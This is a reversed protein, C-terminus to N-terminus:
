FFLPYRARHKSSGYHRQWAATGQEGSREDHERGRDEEDVGDGIELDGNRDEIDGDHQDRDTIEVLAPHHHHRRGAHRQRQQAEDQCAGSGERGAHDVAGDAQRRDADGSIERQPRRCGLRRGSLRLRLKGMDRAHRHQAFQRRRDGVLEVLWQGRDDDVAVGRQAPEARLRGIRVFGGLRRFANDPIGVAGGIQDLAQAREGLASGALGYPQVDILDDGVRQLSTARM